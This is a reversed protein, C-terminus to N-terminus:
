CTKGVCPIKVTGKTFPGADQTTNRLEPLTFGSVESLSDVRGLLKELHRFSGGAADTPGTHGSLATVVLTLGRETHTTGQVGFGAPLELAYVEYDYRPVYFPSQPAEQFGRVGDSWTMNQIALLLGNLPLAIDLAGHAIIVNQTKDIVHPLEHLDPPPSTDFGNPTAFGDTCQEWTINLPAHIAKKVDARNFYPAATSLADYPLPCGKSVKYPDFCPNLDWAANFVDVFLIECDQDIELTGNPRLKTGPPITPAPESPPYTLHQREYEDFGCYDSMNVFYKMFNEDFPLLGYHQEIFSKLGAQRQVNQTKDGILGNYILLGQLDYYKTDDADLMHSSIYPGYVGGYSEATMYIKYGQMSFTDIFNKWFGLFQESLEDENTITVPGQSFGVGVPQEVYVINTM